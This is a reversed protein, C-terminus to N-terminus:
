RYFYATVNSQNVTGNLTFQLTSASTDWVISLNATSNCDATGINCADGVTVTTGDGGIGNRKLTIVSKNSVESSVNIVYEVMITNTHLPVTSTAQQSPEGQLNNNVDSALFQDSRNRILLATSSIADGVYVEATGVSTGITGVADQVYYESGPTLGTFGKVVGASQLLVSDGDVGNTVVFGHFQKAVAVNADSLLANGTTTAIYAPQPTSAGTFTTSATVYSAPSFDVAVGSNTTTATFTHAGSWTFAATLDLFGQAIKGSANTIVCLISASSTDSCLSTPLVLRAGTGGASTGAAAEAGTALEVIGRTTENADSAGAIAVGDVYHKTAITTSASGATILVTDDYNLLNPYTDEGNAQAKLIQIIPFDTIKVNAGRRHSFQLASVTTTGTAQSIGRELSSVTTGSVTGCVTEANANGEDVTFCNYGSLSGGGRISNATLTMTTASSTIPSQLSTEFVAVAQPLEAGVNNEPIFTAGLFGIAFSLALILASQLIKM